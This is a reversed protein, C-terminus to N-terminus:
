EVAGPGRSSWIVKGASSSRRTLSHTKQSRGRRWSASMSSPSPTTWLAMCLGTTAIPTSTCWAPSLTLPSLLSSLRFSLIVLVSSSCDLHVPGSVPPRGVRPSELLLHQQPECFCICCLQRAKGGTTQTFLDVLHHRGFYPIAVLVALSALGVQAVLYQFSWEVKLSKSHVSLNTLDFWLALYEPLIVQQSLTM